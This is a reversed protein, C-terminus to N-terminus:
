MRPDFILVEGDGAEVEHLYMGWDSALQESDISIYERPDEPLVELAEDLNRTFGTEDLVQEVYAEM